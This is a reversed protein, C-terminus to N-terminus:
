NLKKGAHNFVIEFPYDFAEENKNKADNSQESIAHRNPGEPPLPNMPDKM